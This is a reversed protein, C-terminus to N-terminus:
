RRIKKTPNGITEGSEDTTDVTTVQNALNELSKKLNMTFTNQMYKEHKRTQYDMYQDVKSTRYSVTMPNIINKSEIKTDVVNGLELCEYLWDISVCPVGWELAKITKTNSPVEPNRILHTNKRSFTETFKAGMLTAMRNIWLREVDQYGSIGIVLNQFSTLPLPVKTPKFLISQDIPVLSSTQICREIWFETRIDDTSTIYIQFPQIYIIDEIKEDTVINGGNNIISKYLVQMESTTFGKVFFQIDQFVGRTKASANKLLLLRENNAPKPDSPNSDLKPPSEQTIPIIYKEESLRQKEIFCDSLWKYSVCVTTESAKKLEILDQSTPSEGSLIFHTVVGDCTTMFSGGGDRVIKRLYVSLQKDFGNGLFIALTDLYHNESDVIQNAANSPDQNSSSPNDNKNVGPSDLLSSTLSGSQSKTQSVLWSKEVVEIGWQKAATLKASTNLSKAILHTATISMNAQYTGGYKGIIQVIEDLEVSKFGTTSIVLGSLPKISYDGIIETAQKLTLNDNKVKFLWDPTVIPIQLRKAAWYKESGANIAILHSVHNTFHRSLIGIGDLHRVVDEKINDPLGTTCVVLHM